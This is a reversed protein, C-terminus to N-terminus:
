FHTGLPLFLITSTLIFLAAAVMAGLSAEVLEGWGLAVAATKRTSKM